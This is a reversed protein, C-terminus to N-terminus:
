ARRNCVATWDQVTQVILWALEPSRRVIWLDRWASRPDRWETTIVPTRRQFSSPLGDCVVICVDAVGRNRVDTLVQLWYKSGEGGDGAWIGLIDGHGDVTVGIVVYFPRNNTV